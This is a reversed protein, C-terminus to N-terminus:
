NDLYSSLLVNQKIDQSPFFTHCQFKTWLSLILYPCKSMKKSFDHLFHEGLAIGLGGKLKTLYRLAAMAHLFNNQFYSM